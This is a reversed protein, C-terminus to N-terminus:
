LIYDIGIVGISADRGVPAVFDAIGVVPQGDGGFVLVPRGQELITVSPLLDAGMTVQSEPPM